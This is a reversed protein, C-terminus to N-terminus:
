SIFRRQKGYNVKGKDVPYTVFTIVKHKDFVFQLKETIERFIILFWNNSLMLNLSFAVATDFLGWAFAKVIM